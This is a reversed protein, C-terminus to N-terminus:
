DSTPEKQRAEIADLLARYLSSHIHRVSGDRYQIEIFYNNHDPGISRIDALNFAYCNAKDDVVIVFDNMSGRQEIM